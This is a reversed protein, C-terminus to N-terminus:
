EIPEVVCNYCSVAIRFVGASARIDRAQKPERQYEDKDLMGDAFARVLRRKRV